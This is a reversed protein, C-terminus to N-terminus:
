PQKGEEIKRLIEEIKRIDAAKPIALQLKTPDVCWNYTSGDKWLCSTPIVLPTQTSSSPVLELRLQGYEWRRPTPAANAVEVLMTGRPLEHIFVSSGDAEIKLRVASSPSWASVIQKTAADRFVLEPAAVGKPVTVIGPIGPTVTQPAMTTCGAVVAALVLVLIKIM